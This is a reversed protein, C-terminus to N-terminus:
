FIGDLLTPHVLGETVSKIIPSLYRKLVKIFDFCSKVVNRQHDSLVSIPLLFKPVFFTQLVNVIVSNVAVDVVPCNSM